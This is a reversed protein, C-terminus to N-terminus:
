SDRQPYGFAQIEPQRHWIVEQVGCKGYVVYNTDTHLNDNASFNTMGATRLRSDLSEKNKFCLPKGIVAEPIVDISKKLPKKHLTIESVNHITDHIHQNGSFVFANRGSIPFYGETLFYTKGSM